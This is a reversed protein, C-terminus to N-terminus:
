APSTSMGGAALITPRPARDAGSIWCGCATTSSCCCITPRTAVPSHCVLFSVRATITLRTATHGSFTMTPVISTMTSSFTKQRLSGNSWSAGNSSTSDHGIGAADKPHSALLFLVYHLLLHAAFAGGSLLLVVWMIAFGPV